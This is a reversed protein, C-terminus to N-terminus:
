AHQVEERVRRVTVRAEEEALAPRPPLDQRLRNAFAAAFMFGLVLYTGAMILMRAWLPAVLPELAVVATACLLAFGILAVTGGLIAAAGQAAVKKVQEALEIRALQVEDRTIVKLDAAARRM